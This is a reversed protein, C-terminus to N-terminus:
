DGQYDQNSNNKILSTQRVGFFLGLVVHTQSLNRSCVPYAHAIVMGRAATHLYLLIRNNLM